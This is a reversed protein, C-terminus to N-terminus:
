IEKAVNELSPLYSPEYEGVEGRPSINFDRPKVLPILEHIKISNERDFDEQPATEILTGIEEVTYGSDQCREIVVSQCWRRFGASHFQRPLRSQYAMALQDAIAALKPEANRIIHDVRERGQLRAKDTVGNGASDVTGQPSRSATSALRQLYLENEDPCINEFGYPLYPDYPDNFQHPILKGIPHWFYM